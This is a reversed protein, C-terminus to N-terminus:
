LLQGATGDQIHHSGSAGTGTNPCVATAMFVGVIPAHPPHFPVKQLARPRRRVRCGEAGKGALRQTAKAERQLGPAGLLGRPGAAGDGPRAAPATMSWLQAAVSAPLLQRGGPRKEGEPQRARLLVCPRLTEWGQPQFIHLSRGLAQPHSEAPCPRTDERNWPQRGM